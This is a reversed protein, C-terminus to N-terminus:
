SAVAWTTSSLPLVDAAAEAFHTRGLRARFGASAILAAHRESREEELKGV